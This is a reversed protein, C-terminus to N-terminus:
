LVPIRSRGRGPIVLRTPLRLELVGDRMVARAGKPPAAGTFLRARGSSPLHSEIAPYDDAQGDEDPPVGIIQINRPLVSIDINEGPIGPMQAVLTIDDRGIRVGVPPMIVNSDPTKAAGVKSAPPVFYKNMSFPTVPPTRGRGRGAEDFQLTMAYVVRPHERLIETAPGARADADQSTSLMSREGINM